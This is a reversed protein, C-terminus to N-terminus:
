PVGYIEKRIIQSIGNIRTFYVLTTERQKRWTKSNLSHNEGLSSTLAFSFWSNILQPFYSVRIRSNRWSCKDSPSRLLSPQFKSPKDLENEM